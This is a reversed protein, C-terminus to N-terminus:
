RSGHTVSREKTPIRPTTTSQEAQSRRALSNLKNTIQQFSQVGCSHVFYVSDKKWDNPINSFGEIKNKDAPLGLQLRSVYEAQNALIQIEKEWGKGYKEQGKSLTYAHILSPLVDENKISDRFTLAGTKIDFDIPNVTDPSKSVSSPQISSIFYKCAFEPDKQFRVQKGVSTYDQGQTNTIDFVQEVEFETTKKDKIYKQVPVCVDLGGSFNTVKRGLDQWQKESKLDWISINSPINTTNIELPFNDDTNMQLQSYLLLCNRMTYGTNGAIDLFVPLGADYATKEATKILAKNVDDHSLDEYNM